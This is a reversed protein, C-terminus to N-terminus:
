NKFKVWETGTGYYTPLTNDIGTEETNYIVDDFGCLLRGDIDQNTYIQTKYKSSSQSICITKDELEIVPITFAALKNIGAGYGGYVYMINGVTCICTREINHPTNDLQTYTDTNPDYKYSYTSQFIYIYGDYTAISPFSVTFPVPTKMEVLENTKTNLKCCTTENFIYIDDNVCIGGGHNYTAPISCSLPTYTNTLTDYKYVTNTSTCILYVDTGHAVALGYFMTFPLTTVETYTDTTPDYTHVKNNVDYFGGGFIYIIDNITVASGSHVDINKISSLSLDDTNLKLSTTYGGAESTFMYLDKGVTAYTIGYYSQDKQALEEWSGEGVALTEVIKIKNVPKNSKIWIGEKTEPETDQMFINPKINSGSGGGSSGGKNIFSISGM